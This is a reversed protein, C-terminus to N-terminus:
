FWNSIRLIEGISEPAVSRVVVTSITPNDRSSATWMITSNDIEICQMFIGM